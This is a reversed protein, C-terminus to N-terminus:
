ALVGKAFVDLGVSRSGKALVLDRMLFSVSRIQFLQIRFRAGNHQLIVPGFDFHLSLLQLEASQETIAKRGLEQFGLLCPRLFTRKEFRKLIRIGIRDQQTMHWVAPDFFPAKVAPVCVTHEAAVDMAPLHAEWPYAAKPCRILAPEGAPCASQVPRLIFALCHKQRSAQSIRIFVRAKVVDRLDQHQIQKRISGRM